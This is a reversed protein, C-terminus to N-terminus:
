KNRVFINLFATEVSREANTCPCLLEKVRSAICLKCRIRSWVYRCRIADSPQGHDKDNEEVVKTNSNETLRNQPDNPKTSELYRMIMLYMPTAVDITDWLRDM